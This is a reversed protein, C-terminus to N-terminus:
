AAPRPNSDRWARSCFRLDRQRMQGIEAHSITTEVVEHWIRALDVHRHRRLRGGALRWIAVFSHTSARPSRAGVSVATMSTSRHRELPPPSGDAGDVRAATAGTASTNRYLIRLPVRVVLPHPKDAKPPSPCAYCNIRLACQRYKAVRSTIWGLASKCLLLV